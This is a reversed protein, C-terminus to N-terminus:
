VGQYVFKPQPPQDLLPLSVQMWRLYFGICHNQQPSHKVPPTLTEVVTNGKINRPM